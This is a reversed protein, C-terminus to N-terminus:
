HFLIVLWHNMLDQEIKHEYISLSIIRQSIIDEYTEKELSLVLKFIFDLLNGNTLMESSCNMGTHFIDTNAIM